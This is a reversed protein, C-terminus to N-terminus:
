GAVAAVAIVAALVPMLWRLEDDEDDGPGGTRSRPQFLGPAPLAIAGSMSSSAWANGITNQLHFFASLLVRIQHSVAQRGNGSRDTDM